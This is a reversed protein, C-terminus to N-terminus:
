EKGEGKQKETQRGISPQSLYFKKLPNFTELLNSNVIKSGAGGFEHGKSKDEKEEEDDDSEENNKQDPGSPRYQPDAGQM